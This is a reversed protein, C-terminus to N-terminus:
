GGIQSMCRGEPCNHSELRHGKPKEAVAKEIFTKLDKGQKLADRISIEKDVLLCSRLRGDATLRLRNCKNCFHDGLPSIFGVTGLAEPIHFTREPGSGTPTEVPELMLDSLVKHMKQVSFYREEVPPLGDGWDQQNAVPMLEIFRIHWRHEISLRALAPIEDDNFGGVVVTNLKIPNLGAAEAALIGKWATMFDGLRTVRHFKEANLTDMSINVRNLGADALRQAMPGLLIANTTLSLDNIGQIKAVRSVIEVIDSRVLPEGGTLRVKNIGLSAAAEAVRLIEDISLLEDNALGQLGSAPQCYACRLNCRDTISIRLYTIARGFPDILM